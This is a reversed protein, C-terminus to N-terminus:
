FFYEISFPCVYLIDIVFVYLFLVFVYFCRLSPHKKYFAVELGGERGGGGRCMCQWSIKKQQIVHSSCGSSFICSFFIYVKPRPINTTTSAIPCMSWITACATSSWPHIKCHRKRARSRPGLQVLFVVYLGSLLWIFVLFCVCVSLQDKKEWVGENNECVWGKKWECQWFVFKERRIIVCWFYHLSDNKQDFWFILNTNKFGLNKQFSLLILIVIWLAIIQLSSYIQGKIFVVTSLGRLSFKVTVGIVHIDLFFYICEESLFCLERGNSLLLPLHPSPSLIHKKKSFLVSIM